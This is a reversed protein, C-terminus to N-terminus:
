KWRGKEDYNRTKAYLEVIKITFKGTTARQPFRIEPAYINRISGVSYTGGV